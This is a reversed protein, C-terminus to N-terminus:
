SRGAAAASRSSSPRCPARRRGRRARRRRSPRARRADVVVGLVVVAEGLVEAEVDARASPTNDASIPRIRGFDRPCFADPWRGVSLRDFARPLARAARRAAVPGPGTRGPAAARRAPLARGGRRPRDCGPPRRAARRRLAPAADALRASLRAATAALTPLPWLRGALEAPDEGTLPGRVVALSGDGAPGDLNAPRMWTDPRLEGMRLNAM